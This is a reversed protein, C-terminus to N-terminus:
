GNCSRGDGVKLRISDASGEAGGAGGGGVCSGFGAWFTRVLLVPSHVLSPETDQLSSAPPSALLILVRDRSRYRNM